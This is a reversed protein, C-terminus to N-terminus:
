SGAFKLLETFCYALAGFTSAGLLLFAIWEFASLRPSAAEACIKWLRQGPEAEAEAQVVSVQRTATRHQERIGQDSQLPKALIYFNATAM